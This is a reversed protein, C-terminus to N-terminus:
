ISTQTTIDITRQADDHSIRWIKSLHKPDVGGSKGAQATSTMLNALLAENTDDALEMPDFDDESNDMPDDMSTFDDDSTDQSDADDLYIQDFISTAGINIAFQGHENRM